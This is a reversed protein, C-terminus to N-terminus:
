GKTLSVIKEVLNEYGTYQNYGGHYDDPGQATRVLIKDLWSGGFPARVDPVSFYAYKGSHPDSVFGHIDFHGPSFKILSLGAQRLHERFEKQFAVCFMAFDATRGCSSEFHHNKWGIM